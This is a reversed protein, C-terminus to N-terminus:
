FPDNSKPTVSDKWEFLNELNIDVNELAEKQEETLEKKPSPLVTYKTKLEEGTKEITLDYQKPDGRDENEYLALIAQKITAQTIEAGIVEKDDYSRIAFARFEKPRQKDSLPAQRKQTRVPNNDEWDVWGVLSNSLIRIKNSWQKLKLYKWSTVMEYNDPLFGQNTM